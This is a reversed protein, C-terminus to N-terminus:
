LENRASAGTCVARLSTTTPAVDSAVPEGGNEVYFWNETLPSGLELVEVFEKPNFGM